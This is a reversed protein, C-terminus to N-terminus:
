SRPRVKRTAMATTPDEPWYHRPYRGRLEKRVEAYGSKWFSALDRTVQVPRRAPSLLVITLPVQGAALRPTDVQGFMEQLRVSLSPADPDSYDVPIKSGSPVEIHSPCLASLRQRAGHDLRAQLAALMDIDRLRGASAGQLWPGLWDALTLMLTADDCAPLTDREAAVHRRVFEVQAQLARAAPTWPLAGADLGALGALLTARLADPDAGAWPAEALKLAGLCRQRRAIVQKSTADFTLLERTVIRDGLAEELAARSLPAALYIVAEREGGAADLTAIALFEARALSPADRLLAGRGGSLLYRQGDGRAQGIRDPYALALLIGAQLPDHDHQDGVGLARRWRRSQNRVRSLAHGDVGAPAVSKRLLELRTMLSPDRMADVGRLLDREELLAALDAGLTAMGLRRSELLLHALRPHTGLAAMEKGQATLQQDADLAGLGTLLDRAQALNAAPPTDLFRLTGPDAVGWRALELALPALDAECIEAPATAELRSTEAEPWLRYCHGPATRGARGARQDAAARSVRRTVLGTMGTGPNLRASRAWGADIVTSVGEITISTEAIATALVIKRQGPLPRLAADQRAAPLDGYLPLLTAGACDGGLARELKRIEPAGPLFVLLDGATEALAKRITAAVSRVLSERDPRPQHHLTVPYQRATVALQTAEGMLAAVPATDLTASMVLLRLDERLNAQADLCLALGLDANLSREHFEDFVVIAVGELAADSQLMRTLVGETVVEIQTAASVRTELRTRLGITTGLPESLLAAMRTAVATAALRRPELMLVRGRRWSAQLLALPIGTSKGTGPPANLVLNPRDTLSQLVAPLHGAIPLAQIEQPLKLM